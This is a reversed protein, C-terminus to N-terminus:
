FCSRVMHTQSPHWQLMLPCCCTWAQWTLCMGSLSAPALTTCTCSPAMMLWCKRSRACCQQKSRTDNYIDAFVVAHICCSWWLLAHTHVRALLWLNSILGPKTVRAIFRHSGSMSILGPCCVHPLALGKLVILSLTLWEHSGLLCRRVLVFWYCWCAFAHWM